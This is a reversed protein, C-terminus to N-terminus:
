RNMAIHRAAHSGSAWAWHLHYGGCDGHVDAAEGVVYLGPYSKVQLSADLASGKVGGATAQAQEWSGTGTVPFTLRHLKDAVATIQKADLRICPMSPAIGSERLVLRALPKQVIGSLMTEADASYRVAQCSYLMAETEPVCQEPLLDLVLSFRQPCASDVYGALNFLCIGSLAQQTFQVEGDERRVLTEGEYLSVAAKVRLGKLSHLLREESLVPCLIPKPPHLPIGLQRLLQWASGDTGFKPAAYGGAAFIVSQATYQQGETEIIWGHQGPRLGTVATGCIEEAGGQRCALRLADLVATASMTYPYLRGQADARCQLGMAEFFSSAEGFESLILETAVSGVYDGAGIPSHSLNCRGNGTALLKKGTRPLRELIAIKQVGYAAATAAAALGSAGGGIIMLQYQM